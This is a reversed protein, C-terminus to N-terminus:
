VNILNGKLKDSLSHMSIIKSQTHAARGDLYRLQHGVALSVPGEDELHALDELPCAVVLRSQAPDHVLGSHYSRLEVLEHLVDGFAAHVLQGVELTLHDVVM